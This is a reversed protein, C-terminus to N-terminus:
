RARPALDRDRRRGFVMDVETCAAGPASRLEVREALAAILPLGLGVGPSDGRPIIGHGFDRVVVHLEGHEQTAEVEFSGPLRSGAYAHVVANACAETVAIEADALLATDIGSQEGLAALARRALPVSEARAPLRLVLDPPAPRVRLSTGAALPTARVVMLAVDDRREEGSPAAALLRDCLMAASLSGAKSAASALQELGRDIPADRREVLGDTCLVLSEGAALRLEVDMYRMDVAAGLPAALGGRLFTARGDAAVHLAPVHGANAFRAVGALRDVAVLLLTAMDEDGGHAILLRNLRALLAAPSSEDLAFARTANRLAGMASASALGHGVVDGIALLLSGDQLLLVDYWDGGVEADRSSPLYRAAVELGDVLPMREPLMSRQLTEAVTRRRESLRASVIVLAARDAALSLLRADAEDFRGRESSGLVVAGIIEGEASVPVGLMSRVGPAVLPRFLSPMASVDDLVLPEGSATVRGALGEGLGVTIGEGVVNDLGYAARLELEDREGHHLLIAVTQVDLMRALGEALDALLDDLRSHSLANTSLADLHSLLQASREAEGRAAQERELLHANEIALSCRRAIEAILSVDEDDFARGDGTRAFTISGLVRNSALLPEVVASATACERGALLALAPHEGDVLRREGSRLSEHAVGVGTRVSRRVREIETREGHVLAVTEHVGDRGVLDVICWDAIAPVSLRAIRRLIRRPARTSHLLAGADALLRASREARRQAGLDVVFAVVELPEREVVAAGFLVPVRTGDRRVLDKEIPSSVGRVLAEGLAREDRTRHEPATLHLWSGLTGDRLEDRSYGVTALFADNAERIGDHGFVVVGVVNSEVLRRARLESLRLADRLAAAEAPGAALPRQRAPEVAAAYM